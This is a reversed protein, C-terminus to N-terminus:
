LTTSYASNKPGFPIQIIIRGLGFGVWDLFAWTWSQHGHFPGLVNRSNKLKDLLWSLITLSQRLLLHM